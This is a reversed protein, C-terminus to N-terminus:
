EYGDETLTKNVVDVITVLDVKLDVENYSAESPAAAETNISYRKQHHNNLSTNHQQSPKCAQPVFPKGGLRARQIPIWKFERVGAVRFTRKATGFGSDDDIYGM